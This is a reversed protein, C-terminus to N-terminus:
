KRHVIRDLILRKYSKICKKSKKKVDRFSINERKSEIKKKIIKM